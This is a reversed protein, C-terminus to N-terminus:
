GPIDVNRLPTGSWDYSTPLGYFQAAPPMAFSMMNRGHHTRLGRREAAKLLPTALPEMIVDAVVADPPLADVLFQMDVAKLGVPSANVM